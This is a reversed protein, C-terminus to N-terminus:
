EEKESQEAVETGSTELDPVFITINKNFNKYKGTDGMFEKRRFDAGGNSIISNIDFGKQIQHAVRSYNLGIIQCLEKLYIRKGFYYVIISKRKNNSQQTITAWRCNEPCYDGDNNIRDLTHMNSPREGMDSVFHEFGFNVPLWRDCVKIGRGGYINYHKSNKNYCRTLMSSWLGYLPHKNLTGSFDLSASKRRYSHRQFYELNAKEMCGCSKTNGTMLNSYGTVSEKGCDCICRWLTRGNKRGVYEVAVLMGFRRGTLDNIKGM